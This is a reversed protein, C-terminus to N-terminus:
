SRRPPMGNILESRVDVRESRIARVWGASEVSVAVEFGRDRWYQKITMALREAGARTMADDPDGGDGPRRLLVDGAVLGRRELWNKMGSPSIPQGMRKLRRCAESITLSTRLVKMREENAERPRM